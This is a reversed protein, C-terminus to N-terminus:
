AYLALAEPRNTIAGAVADGPVLGQARLAWSLRNSLGAIDAFTELKGDTVVAARDPHQEAQAWLTRLEIM